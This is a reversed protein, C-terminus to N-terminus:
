TDSFLFFAFFFLSRFANRNAGKIAADPDDALAATGANAVAPPTNASLTAIPNPVCANILVAVPGPGPGPGVDDGLTSCGLGEGPGVGLGM